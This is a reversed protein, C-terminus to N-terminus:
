KIDVEYTNKINNGSVIQIFYVGSALETVNLLNDGSQLSGQLAIVGAANVLRYTGSANVTVHLMGNTPNPYIRTEINSFVVSQVGSFIVMGNLDVQKLRYYNYGSQPYQDTYQYNLPTSSNGNTAKSAIFTIDQWTQGDASREVYFCKNNSEMATTWQVSATNGNANVTFSQLAIPLASPAVIADPCSAGDNQSNEGLNAVEVTEGTTMNIQYLNGTNNGFAFLDGNADFFQSGFNDDETATADGTLPVSSVINGTTPDYTVVYYQHNASNYTAISVLTNNRTDYIWDAISGYSSVNIASVATAVQSLDASNVLYGFTSRSQNIDIVAYIGGEGYAIYLYGNHIAGVNFSYSFPPPMPINQIPFYSTNGRADIEILEMGFGGSLIGWLMNSVTDYGISNISVYYPNSADLSVAGIPIGTITEGPTITYQYLTNSAIQYIVGNTCTFKETAQAGAQLALGLALMVLYFKRM